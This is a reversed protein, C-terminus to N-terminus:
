KRSTKSSTNGKANTAHPDNDSRHLLFAKNNNIIARILEKSKYADEEGTPPIVYNMFVLGLPVNQRTPDSLRNLVYPNMGTAVAQCNEVTQANNLFGGISSEYFTRHRGGNYNEYAINNMDIIAKKRNNLNSGINDLESFCWRLNDDGEVLPTPVIPSKWKLNITLPENASGSIWRSFLAPTSGWLYPKENAPKDENTNVKAIIKGKVNNITTFRTLEGDYLVESNALREFCSRVAIAWAEEGSLNFTGGTDIATATETAAKSFDPNWTYDNSWRDGLIVRNNGYQYGTIGSRLVQHGSSAIQKRRYPVNNIESQTDMGIELFMLGDPNMSKHLNIIATSLPETNNTDQTRYLRIWFKPVILQEVAASNFKIAIADNSATVARRRNYSKGNVTWSGNEANGSVDPNGPNIVLTTGANYTTGTLFPDEFNVQSDNIDFNADMDGYKRLVPGNKTHVEFARIGADYMEKLTHNGQFTSNAAHWAGPISLESLFINPNLQGVWRSLDFDEGRKKFYGLKVPYIKGSAFSSEDDSLMKYFDGCNTQLHLRLNKLTKGTIQNPILFARLRLHDIQNYNPKQTEEMTSRVYLTPYYTKGDKTVATQLQVIANGSVNKIMDTTGKVGESMDLDFSGAIPVDHNIPFKAITEQDNQNYTADPTVVELSVAQIQIFNAAIGPGSENANGGLTNPSVPGNLTIDLVDALVEFKLPVEQGYKDATMTTRAVMVAAGMQPQAFITKSVDTHNVTNSTADYENTNYTAIDLDKLEGDSTDATVGHEKYKYAVPSQAAVVTARITSTNTLSESAKDAPYFAYFTHQTNQAGWQVGIDSANAKVVSEAVNSDQEKLNVKYKAFGREPNDPCYINIFEDVKSYNGWYIQQTGTEAWPEAYMTRTEPTKAVSFQVDDGQKAPTVTTEFTDSCGMLVFPALTIAWKKMKNM